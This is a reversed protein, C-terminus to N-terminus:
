DFWYADLQVGSAAATGRVIIFWTGADPNTITCNHTNGAGQQLCDNNTRTPASGFNIVLDANGTGGSTDVVLSTAGAPVEITYSLNQGQAPSLGTETFGGSNGGGETVTVSQTETDSAGENDTVTLSVSYTGAAAYNHVPNADTSANGDGFDWSYSSISGDSDSSSDTFTAELDATTVSFGASPLNNSESVTVSQSTSDTAGQDDTVTLQVSYTGAVVYNHTPNTATSTNGDGFDWSRSSITGDSDNSSDTFIAQLDNVVVNFGATPAINGSAEATWYADLQVGSSAQAGRVIIYWTGQQPNNITCNHENGAGQEICDNDFRTPTSGYNIVLDANGSGGSTSVELLTANAPVEITFSLNEGRAPNLDTETFGGTTTTPTQQVEVTETSTSIGGENDTVTLTVTYSGDESYTHSPAQLTSVQSDGFDWSYSSITGDPDSSTAGDFDCVLEVCSSTFAAIPLQNDSITLQSATPVGVNGAEDYARVFIIHDGNSLGATDIQADFLEVGSSLDGDNGLVEIVTATEKWIPTDISYEVKSITNGSTSLLTRTADATVVLDVPTGAPVSTGSSSGALEIQTIEPGHALLYPAASVKAAYILAPLNDPKITDQYDSCQQFFSTGLEFTFAAIGLEGYSVDDSTGDTPYLGISQQPTYNNFWALKNGLSVFGDDNPSADGTHGWPWLVLESYSHIDIHMGATDTPAADNINDGRVDPFISRIYNSVAQTEPESEPANGRYTSDCEFGSSGNSTSNWFYAFNRNLDVGVNFGPCHNQNTNKRQLVGTEAIKRGDPNMHFLIHVEHYDLIWQIDVNNDYENLLEKAFDLSLAAPTYERAHMASHIFLKPKDEVVEQNTLKLVMLDYGGQNNAKNWSDGIDIWEALTPYDVAFQAGEDLTEEVTAYCEFGPIGDMQIGQSKQQLRQTVNQKFLKYKANWETANEIQLNHQKLLEIENATLDAIIYNDQYNTELIAHHFSIAIKRALADDNVLIKFAILDNPSQNVTQEVAQTVKKLSTTTAETQSQVALAPAILACAGILIKSVKNHSLTRKNM